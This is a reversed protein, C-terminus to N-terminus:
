AFARLTANDLIRFPEHGRLMEDVLGAAIAAAPVPRWRPPTLPALLIAVRESVRVQDRAGDIVAPRAIVTREWGLAAFDGEVEGKMRLYFNRSAPNAGISSVLGGTRAGAARARGALELVLDHDVRRYAAQTRAQGITTGLASVFADVRFADDLGVLSAFDVVRYSVKTSPRASPARRVLAVVETVEDRAALLRLLERGVLGTAGVVLFRAM